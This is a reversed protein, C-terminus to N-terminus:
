AERWNWCRYGAMFKGYLLLMLDKPYPNNHGVFTIRPRLFNVICKGDVYEAFWNSGVSAPLLMAIKAGKQAEINAKAVWPTIDSYPPNLWAWNNFIWSQILADEVESYYNEGAVSNNEDAALDHAFSRIELLNRVASIFENPTAVAQESRGPKQKPVNKAM